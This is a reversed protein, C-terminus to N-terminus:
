RPHVWVLHPGGDPIDVTVTPVAGLRRAVSQSRVNDPAILSLV